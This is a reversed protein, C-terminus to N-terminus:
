VEFARTVDIKSGALLWGSWASQAVIVMDVDRCDCIMVRSM